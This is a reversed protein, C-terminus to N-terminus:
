NKFIGSPSLSDFDKLVAYRSSHLYRKVMELSTHGLISQLNYINGGNELYSTAFTHRLLHPYIRELGSITKLDRFFDKITDNSIEAGEVTCFLKKCRPRISVFQRIYSVTESSLPVIREKDCKGDAILYKEDLHLNEYLLSSVEGCRMGSGLMLLCICRNRLGHFTSIDFQSLLLDIESKTLVNVVSRHAKPLRFNVCLNESHYGSIYLWSLFARFGRIYSQVSVSSIGCDMLYLLYSKCLPLSIESVLRVSCFGKFKKFIYGYYQLTKESNGRIKQEILFEEIAKDLSCLFM